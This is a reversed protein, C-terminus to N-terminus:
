LLKRFSAAKVLRGRLAGATLVAEVRCDAPADLLKCPSRRRGYGFAWCPTLGLLGPLRCVHCALQPSRRRYARFTVVVANWGPFNRRVVEDVVSPAGAVRRRNWGESAELFLTPLASSQLPAVEDAKSGFLVRLEPFARHAAKSVPSGCAGSRFAPLSGAM